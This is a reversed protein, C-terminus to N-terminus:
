VIKTFWLSGGGYGHGKPHALAKIVLEPFAHFAYACGFEIRFGRTYMLLARLLYQENWSRNQDIVWAQPYEHPLFIDHVHIRVGPALAPLVDFYIRNVDSGTKAVHSSDVFLIDGAELAAFEELPVDQVKEEVLRSIGDIRNKLFSRPYPEICTVHIGGGFWRRNVDAILLSSYGSGVEIVRRPRWAHLLVFLARPDLWSFQENRTYFDVLDPGDPLLEPYDYLPLHRPFAEVLLRRHGDDNWDIGGAIPQAPWLRERVATVEKPDVLPSYFHGPPVWLGDPRRSRARLERLLRRVTM